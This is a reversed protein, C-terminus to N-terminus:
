SGVVEDHRTDIHPRLNTIVSQACNLACNAVMSHSKKRGKWLYTLFSCLELIFDHAIVSVHPTEESNYLSFMKQVFVSDFITNVYPHLQVNRRVVLLLGNITINVAEPADKNISHTIRRLLSNSAMLEVATNSDAADMILCYLLILLLRADTSVKQPGWTVLKGKQILSTFANNSFQVNHFVTRCHQPSCRSISLLLGLTSHILETHGSSLQTHLSKSFNTWIRTIISECFTEATYACHFIVSFCSMHASCLKKDHDRGPLSWLVFLEELKPSAKIYSSLLGCISNPRFPTLM